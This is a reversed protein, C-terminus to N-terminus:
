VRSGGIDDETLHMQQALHQRARNVRSKITGVACGAQQAAEEYSLGELVVLSLVEQYDPRLSEFASAFKQHVLKDEQEPPVSLALAWSGDVDEVERRNSRTSTYFQNKLITFLWARLNTGTEYREPKSLARLLTEQVLDDAREPVHTLSCAFKKLAPLNALLGAMFAEDIPEQRARVAEFTRRVLRKLDTPVRQQSPDGYVTRLERGLHSIIEDSLRIPSAPSTKWPHDM